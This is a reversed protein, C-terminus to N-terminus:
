QSALSGSSYQLYFVPVTEIDGEDALLGFGQHAHHTVHIASAEGRSMTGWRGTAETTRV